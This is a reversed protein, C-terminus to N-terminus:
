VERFTKWMVKIIPELLYDAMTRKGTVILVDAPMGAVLKIEPGLTALEKPDIEVRALYYPQNSSKDVIRDASISQVIGDLRPTVRSSYASLQIQAPLGAQVVDIDMPSVRADIILKEQIPVIDLVATGPQIVGSVTKYQLNIVKGSVPARIITRSLVDKSAVLKDDITNLEARIKEAQNAIENRREADAAILQLRAESIQQEAQAINSAYQGLRGALEAEMRKLRLLVPRALLGKRALTAKAEVEERIIAIQQDVSASQARLGRIQEGLQEIRQRTISQRSTHAALRAKFLQRQSDMRDQAEASPTSTLDEPFDLMSAGDAEAKLRVMTIRLDRHQKALVDYKAKAQISELVLLPQGAKVFDGDRFLLKHIIGGELHQVTRKSGDPSLVGPALAGGALPVFTAWGGFGVFFILILALGIRAPWRMHRSLAVDELEGEIVPKLPTPERYVVLQKSTRSM